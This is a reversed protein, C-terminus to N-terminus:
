KQVLKYLTTDRTTGMFEGKCDYRADVRLSDSLTVQNGNIYPSIGSHYSIPSIRAIQEFLKFLFTDVPKQVDKGESDHQWGFLQTAQSVVGNTFIVGYNTPVKELTEMIRTQRDSFVYTFYTDLDMFSNGLEIENPPVEPIADNRGWKPIIHDSGTFMGDLEESPIQNSESQNYLGLRWSLSNM